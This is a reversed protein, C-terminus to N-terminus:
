IYCDEQNTLDAIVMDNRFCKLDFLGFYYFFCPHSNIARTCQGNRSVKYPIIKTRAHAVDGFTSYPSMIMENAEGLLFMELVADQIGIVSSRDFASDVHLLRDGLLEKLKIRSPIHDTALFFSRQKNGDGIATACRLFIDTFDGSVANGELQRLQISVVEEAPSNPVKWQHVKKFADMRTQLANNLRLLHPAITGFIDAGFINCLRSRLHPNMALTPAFWQTSKVNIIRADYSIGANPECLIKEWTVTLDAQRTRVPCARCYAYYYSESTGERYKLENWNPIWRFGPTDFLDDLHAGCKSTAPWNVLFARNTMVALAFASVLGEIRNGLGENPAHYILLKQDDLIKKMMDNHFKIYEEFTKEFPQSPSNPPCMRRPVGVDPVKRTLPENTLFIFSVFLIAILSFLVQLYLLRRPPMTRRICLRVSHMIANFSQNWRRLGSNANMANTLGGCHSSQMWQLNYLGIVAYLCPMTLWSLRRVVDDHLAWYIVSVIAALIRVAWLRLSRTSFSAQTTFLPTLTSGDSETLRSTPLSNGPSQNPLSLANEEDEDNSRPTNPRSDSSRLDLSAFFWLAYTSFFVLLYLPIVLGEVKGFWTTYRVARELYDMARCFTDCLAYFLLSSANADFLCEFPTTPTLGRPSLFLAKKACSRSSFLTSFHNFSPYFYCFLLVFTVCFYCM